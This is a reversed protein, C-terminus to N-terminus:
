SAGGGFMRRSAERDPETRSLLWANDLYERGKETANLKSIFSDRRIQLYYVLDLEGVETVPIRLWDAVAKDHYTAVEYQHHGPEQM